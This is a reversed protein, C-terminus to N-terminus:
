PEGPRSGGVAEEKTLRTGHLSSVRFPSPICRATVGVEDSGWAFSSNRVSFTWLPYKRELPTRLVSGELRGLFAGLTVGWLSRWSLRPRFLVRPALRRDGNAPAHRGSIPRRSAPWQISFTVDKVRYSAIEFLQLPSSTSTNRGFNSTTRTMVSLLLTLWGAGWRGTELILHGVRHYLGLWAGLHYCHVM